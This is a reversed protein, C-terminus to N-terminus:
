SAVLLRPSYGPVALLFLDSQDVLTQHLNEESLSGGPAKFGLLHLGLSENFLRRSSDFM